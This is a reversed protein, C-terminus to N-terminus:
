NKKNNLPITFEWNGFGTFFGGEILIQWKAPFAMVTLTEATKKIYIQPTKKKTAYYINRIRLPDLHTDLPPKVTQFAATATMGQLILKDIKETLLFDFVAKKLKEPREGKHPLFARKILDVAGAQHWLMVAQIVWAEKLAFHFGRIFEIVAEPDNSKEYRDRYKESTKIQEALRDRIFVTAAEEPKTPKTRTPKKM